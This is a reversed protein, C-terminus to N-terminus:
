NNVNKICKCLILHPERIKGTFQEGPLHRKEKVINTRVSLLDM